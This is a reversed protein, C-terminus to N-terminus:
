KKKKSKKFPLAESYLKNEKIIKLFQYFIMKDDPKMGFPEMFEKEVKNKAKEDKAVFKNIDEINIYENNDIDITKFTSEINEPTFLKEKNCLVRLFEQQQILNNKDYDFVDLINNIDEEEYEIKNKDFANKIDEESIVNDHDKDIYKFLDILKAEEEKDLFNLCIYAIIVEHFKSAPKKVKLLSKLIELLEEDLEENKIKKEETFFPHNFCDNVKIRKNKDKELLKLILDKCEDSFNSSSLDIDNNKINSKIEEEDEGKFPFEGILLYYMIIGCIWEDNKDEENFEKTLNSEEIQEIIEPSYYYLSNIDTDYKEKLYNITSLKIEYKKKVENEKKDEEKNNKKDTKKKLLKKKGSKMSMEILLIEDLKLGINFINQDHLYMISNLIQNMIIKTISENLVESEIKEKLSKEKIYDCILYYNNDYIYVEYIKLINSHDLLQLDEVKKLFSINKEENIITEKDPIIVMLRTIEPNDTFAIINSDESDKKYKELPNSYFQNKFLQSQTQHNDSLSLPLPVDLTKIKDNNDVIMHPGDDQKSTETMNKPMNIDEKDKNCSLCSQVLNGM